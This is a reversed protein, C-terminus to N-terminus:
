PTEGKMDSVVVFPNRNKKRLDAAGDGGHVVVCVMSALAVGFVEAYRRLLSLTVDPFHPLLRHKKVRGAGVGVRRAVDSETMANLLMYYGVPSLEGSLLREIGQERLRKQKEWFDDIYNKSMYSGTQLPGFSGDNKEVYLLMQHSPYDVRADSEKVVPRRNFILNYFYIM